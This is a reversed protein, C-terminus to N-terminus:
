HTFQTNLEKMAQSLKKKSGKKSDGALEKARKWALKMFESHSIVTKEAKEAPERVWTKTKPNWKFGDKKFLIRFPYTYGYIENVTTPIEGGWMSVSCNGYGPAEFGLDGQHTERQIHICKKTYNRHFCINRVNLKNGDICGIAHMFKYGDAFKGAAIENKPFEVSKENMITELLEDHEITYNYNM